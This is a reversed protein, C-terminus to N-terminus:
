NNKGALKLQTAKAADLMKGSKVLKYSNEIDDSLARDKDYSSVVTRYVVYAAETAPAFKLEANKQKRMTIAQAGHMMEMGLIYSLNDVMRKLRQAIHPLNSAHDEIDGALSLYDVTSPNSLHRIETDLLAFSKQIEGFAHVLNENPSLFRPLRSFAPDGLKIMRYCSLRSVHSIALAITEFALAVSTVEFNSCSIIEKDELLLCPNDDSSNMQILSFKKATDIVDRLAGHIYVASRFSLPDQVPKDPDREYIYSGEIFRRVLAASAAQGAMGRAAHVRADLPSTNGNLGELSIAYILDATDVLNELEILVLAAQAMGFANSSVMALGDKPGVTIPSLNAKKYAAAASMREGNYIVEGEELMAGAIHALPALDSCGVSGRQPVVPHIKCNLFDMYRFAIESQIGTNGCLLCNLRIAMAARVQASSAEGKIGTTHSRILNENYNKFYESAIHQDKNWGVGTNFGYVPVDRDVLEYVLKRSDRLRKEGEAAIEIEEENLAIKKLAILDLESGNLTIM